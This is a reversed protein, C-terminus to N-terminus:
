NKKDAARSPNSELHIKCGAKQSSIQWSNFFYKKLSDVVDKAFVSKAALVAGNVV